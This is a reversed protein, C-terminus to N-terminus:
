TMFGQSVWIREQMAYGSPHVYGVVLYWIDLAPLDGGFFNGYNKFSGNLTHVNRALSYVGGDELNGTKKMWVTYRYASTNDIVIPNTDWGGDYYNSANNSGEWLLDTHGFPTTGNTIVNVGAGFPNYFGSNTPVGASWDYPIANNAELSGTKGAGVLVSQKARGLGDFYTIATSVSDPNQTSLENEQLAVKYTKSVVYNESQTQSSLVLPLMMCAAIIHIITKKM